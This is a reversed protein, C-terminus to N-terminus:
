ESGEEEDEDDEGEEEDNDGELNFLDTASTSPPSTEGEGELQTNPVMSVDRKTRVAMPSAPPLKLNSQQYRPPTTERKPNKNNRSSPPAIDSDSAEESDAELAKARAIKRVLVPDTFFNSPTLLQPNTTLNSYTSNTPRPRPKQPTHFESSTFPHSVVECAPCRVAKENMGNPGPHRIRSANIMGM